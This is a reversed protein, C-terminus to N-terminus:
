SVESRDNKTRGGMRVIIPQFEAVTSMLSPLSMVNDMQRITGDEINEKGYVQYERSVPHIYAIVLRSELM